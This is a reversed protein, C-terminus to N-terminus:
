WNLSVRVEKGGCWAAGVVDLAAVASECRCYRALLAGFTKIKEDMFLM